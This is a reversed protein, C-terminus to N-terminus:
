IRALDDIFLECGRPAWDPDLGDVGSSRDPGVDSSKSGSRDSKPNRDPSELRGPLKSRFLSRDSGPGDVLPRRPNLDSRPLGINRGSCCIGPDEIAGLIIQSRDSNYARPDDVAPRGGRPPSPKSTRPSRDGPHRPGAVGCSSRVLREPLQPVVVRDSPKSRRVVGIRPSRDGPTYGRRSRDSGFM